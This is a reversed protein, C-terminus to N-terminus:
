EEHWLVVTMFVVIETNNPVIFVAIGCKRESVLEEIMTVKYHQNLPIKMWQYFLKHSNKEWDNESEFSPCLCSTFDGLISTKEIKHCQRRKITEIQSLSCCNDYRKVQKCEMWAHCPYSHSIFLFSSYQSLWKIFHSQCCHFDISSKENDHM